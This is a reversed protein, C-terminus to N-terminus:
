LNSKASILTNELLMAITMPGVGGPVPTIASAIKSVEEFKVDGVLKSEDNKEIRNIGVDVVVAGNKVFEATVFEARGIAAILIDATKAIERINKTASHCITVTSNGISKASFLIAAPIGVIQSRGLVVAHKGATEINHEKLLEVIGKPTCPIFQPRGQQLLGINHPHFGDVDKKPSIADIVATEDIHKPLPLQVLIGHFKPNQNLKEIIQLLEKEEANEPLRITESFIGSRKCARGKNRVYVASASDEGVLVVALGPIIGLESIESKIRKRVKKALAKGDLIIAM